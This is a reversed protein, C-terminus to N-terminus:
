ADGSVTTGGADDVGPTSAGSSVDSVLDVSPSSAGGRPVSAARTASASTVPLQDVGPLVPQAPPTDAGEDVMRSMVEGIAVAVKSGGRRISQRLNRTILAELAGSASKVEEEASLVDRRATSVSEESRTLRRRANSLAGQSREVRQLAEAIDNNLM